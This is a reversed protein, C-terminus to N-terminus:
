YGVQYLRGVVMSIDSDGIPNAAGAGDPDISGHTDVDYEFERYKEPDWGPIPEGGSAPSSWDAM